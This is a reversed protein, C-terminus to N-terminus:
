RCLLLNAPEVTLGFNPRNIRATMELCQEITEFPSNTHTLHVLRMGREQAQDAARQAWSVDAETKITIRILRSGLMEAVDIDRGFDRLSQGAESMNAAIATHLCVMSSQLGYTDLIQRLCRIEEDPTEVTVQSPRICLAQFGIESALQALDAFSIATGDKIHEEEAIRGSLSLKMMEVSVNKESSAAVNM